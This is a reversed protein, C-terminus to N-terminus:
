PQNLIITFEDTDTWDEIDSFEVGLMDTFDQPIAVLKDLTSVLRWPHWYPAAAGPTWWLKDGNAIAISLQWKLITYSLIKPM